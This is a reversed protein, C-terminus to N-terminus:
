NEKSKVGKKGDNMGKVVDSRKVSFGVGEMEDDDDGDNNKGKSKNEEKRKRAERNAAFKARNKAKQEWMVKQRRASREEASDGESSASSKKRDAYYEERGRAKEKEMEIEREERRTDDDQDDANEDDGWAYNHVRMGLGLIGIFAFWAVVIKCVIGGAWKASPTLSVFWEYLRGSRNTPKRELLPLPPPFPLQKRTAYGGLVFSRLPYTARQGRYVYYSRQNNHQGGENRVLLITPTADVQFRKTTDRGSYGADITAIYVPGAKIGIGMDHNKPEEYVYVPGKPTRDEEETEEQANDTKDTPQKMEGDDNSNMENRNIDTNINEKNMAIRAKNLEVENHRMLEGDMALSELVPLAKKCIGCADTKFMILWTSPTSSSSPLTTLTDFNEDTLTVVQQTLDRPINNDTATYIATTTAEDTATSCDTTTSPDLSCTPEEQEDEAELVEEPNIITTTATTTTTTATTTTATPQGVATQLHMEILLLTLLVSACVTLATTVIQRRRMIRPINNNHSSRSSTTPPAMM